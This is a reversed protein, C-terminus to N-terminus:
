IRRMKGIIDIFYRRKTLLVLMIIVILLYRIVFYKYLISMLIVTGSLLLSMILLRKMKFLGSGIKRRLLRVTFLFHAMTFFMYCVLTTYGAAVFGYRPIFLYNLIINMVAGIISVYMTFKNADYFIQINGLIGFVFIYFISAAIPLIVDVARQYKAGALLGILDPAFIIFLICLLMVLMTLSHVVKAVEDYEKDELKRYMWPVISINIGDTVIKMVMGLSYAVGYIGAESLNRLKQIMIRDSQSLIYTSLYHPMLPVNFKLAFVAYKVKFWCKSKTLNVIYFFLGFCSTVVICSLIRVLGKDKSLLVATVGVLPNLIALLVTAIVVKKYKFDYRQRLMWLTMAPEFLLELFIFLTITSGLETVHNISDMCFLYVVLCLITIGTITMQMTSTYIDKEKSYKLMGKNFVSYTLRFTTILSLIALWAQYMSYQGYQSTTLIRTFIPTTIISISKQLIACVMFWGAAKAPLPIRHYKELAKKLLKNM